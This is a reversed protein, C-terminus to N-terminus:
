FLLYKMSCSRRCLRVVDTLTRIQDIERLYRKVKTQEDSANPLSSDILDAGKEETDWLHYASVDVAWVQVSGDM